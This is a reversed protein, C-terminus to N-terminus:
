LDRPAKRFLRGYCVALVPSYLTRGIVGGILGLPPVALAAGLTTMVGGAINTVSVFKAEGRGLLLFHPAVSFALMFYALTLWFLLDSVQLAMDVGVWLVLIPRGFILLPLALLAALAANAIIAYRYLRHMDAGAEAGIRRSMLPLLFSFGAAPISHVQSALQTCISYQAVAQAGMLAGILFRDFYLFLAGSIGQLWNWLGFSLVERALTPQWAPWHVSAGVVRRALMARAVLGLLSVAAATALVSLVDRTLSAVLLSAGFISVKLSIELPAATGFREFGKIAATLVGDAQQIILILAGLSLAIAVKEHAGMDPFVYRALLPSCVVITSGLIVGGILAIALTQRVVAAVKDTEGSGRYQAVYKMTAAGMGLGAVGAMGSVAGVLMWLGFDEQGLLRLLIPTTALMMLPYFLYELVSWGM